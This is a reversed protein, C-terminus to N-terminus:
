NGRNKESERIRYSISDVERVLAALGKIFLRRYEQVGIPEPQEAREALQEGVEKSSTRKAM